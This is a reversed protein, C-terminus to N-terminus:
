SPGPPPNGPRELQSPSKGKAIAVAQPNPGITRCCGRRCASGYRVQPVCTFDANPIPDVSPPSLINKSPLHIFRISLNASPEYASFTTTTVCYGRVHSYRFLAGVQLPHTLLPIYVVRKYLLRPRTMSFRLNIRTFYSDSLQGPLGYVEANM